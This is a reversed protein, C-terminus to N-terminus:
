TGGGEPLIRGLAVIGKLQHITARRSLLPVRCPRDARVNDLVGVAAEPAVDYALAFAERLERAEDKDVKAKKRGQALREIVDRPIAGDLKLQARLVQARTWRPQGHVRTVPPGLLPKLRHVSTRSYGFARMVDRTGLLESELDTTM